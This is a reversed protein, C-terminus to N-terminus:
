GLLLLSGPEPTSTVTWTGPGSAIDGFGIVKGTVSFDEVTVPNNATGASTACAIDKCANMNWQTIAGNTIGLVTFDYSSSNANTLTLGTGDTFSFTSVDATIDSVVLPTTLVFTLSLAYPGGCTGPTGNSYTGFCTTYDNGTYTYVTDARLTGPLMVCLLSLLGIASLFNPRWNM